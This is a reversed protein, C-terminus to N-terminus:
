IFCTASLGAAARKLFPGRSSKIPAQRHQRDQHRSLAERIAALSKSGYGADLTGYVNLAGGEKLAQKYTDDISQARASHVVFFIATCQVILCCINRVSGNGNPRM